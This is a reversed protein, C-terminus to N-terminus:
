LVSLSQCFREIDICYYVSMTRSNGKATLHNLKPTHNLKPSTYFDCNRAGSVSPGIGGDEVFTKPRNAVKVMESSERKMTEGGSAIQLLLAFRKSEVFDVVGFM